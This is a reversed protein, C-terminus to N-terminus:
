PRARDIKDSEESAIAVLDGTQQSSGGASAVVNDRRWLMLQTGDNYFNISFTENGFVTTLSTANPDNQGQVVLQALITQFGNHAESSSGFVYVIIIVDADAGPHVVSKAASSAGYTADLQQSEVAWGSVDSSTIM